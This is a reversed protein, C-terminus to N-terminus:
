IETGNQLQKSGLGYSTCLWVRRTSCRLVQVAVVRGTHGTFCTQCSMRVTQPWCELVVHVVAVRVLTQKMEPSVQLIIKDQNARYQFVILCHSDHILSVRDECVLLLHVRSRIARAHAAQRGGRGRGATAHGAPPARM